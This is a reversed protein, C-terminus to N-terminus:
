ERGYSRGRELADAPGPCGWASIRGRGARREPTPEGPEPDGRAGWQTRGRAGALCEAADRM